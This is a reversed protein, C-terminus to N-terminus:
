ASTGGRRSAALDMSSVRRKSRDALPSSAGRCARGWARGARDLCRTLAGADLSGVAGGPAVAAVAVAGRAVDAASSGSSAARLARTRAFITAHSRPASTNEPKSGHASGNRRALSGSPTTPSAISRTNRPMHWRRAGRVSTRSPTAIGKHLRHAPMKRPTAIAAAIARGIRVIRVHRKSKTIAHPRMSASTAVCSRPSWGTHCAVRIM